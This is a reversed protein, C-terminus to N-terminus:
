RVTQAGLRDAQRPRSWSTFGLLCGANSTFDAPHNKFGEKIPLFCEDGHDFASKGCPPQRQGPFPAKPMSLGLAYAPTMARAFAQVNALSEEGVGDDPAFQAAEEPTALWPQGPEPPRPRHLEVALVVM